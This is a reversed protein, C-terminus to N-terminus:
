PQTRAAAPSVITSADAATAPSAAFLGADLAILLEDVARMMHIILLSNAPAAALLLHHGTEIGHVRRADAPILLHLGQQVGVQGKLSPRLVIASPPGSQMSGTPTSGTCARTIRRNHITGHTQVRALGYVRATPRLLRPLQGLPPSREPNIAPRSAPRELAEIVGRAATPNRPRASGTQRRLGPRRSAALSRQVRFPRASSADTDQGLSASRGTQNVAQTQCVVSAARQAAKGLHPPQSGSVLGDASSPDHDDDSM